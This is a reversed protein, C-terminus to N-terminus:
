NDVKFRKGKKAPVIEGKLKNEKKYNEAAEKTKFTRVGVKKTSATSGHGLGSTLGLNRKVRTHIKAM